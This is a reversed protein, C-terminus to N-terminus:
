DGRKRPTNQLFKKVSVRFSERIDIKRLLKLFKLLQREKKKLLEGNYKLQPPIKDLPINSKGTNCDFCATIYNNINDPGGKSKPIKHDVHLTIEPPKRGCYTCRFGGRKFVEFRM